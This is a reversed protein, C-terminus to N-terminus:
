GRPYKEYPDVPPRKRESLWETLMACCVAAFLIGGFIALASM